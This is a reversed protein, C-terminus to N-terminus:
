RNDERQRLFESLDQGIMKNLIQKVFIINSCEKRHKEFILKRKLNM